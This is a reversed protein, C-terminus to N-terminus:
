GEDLIAQDPMIRRLFSDFLPVTFSLAGHAPSYIMGEKIMKARVPGLTSSEVGMGTAVDRFRYPGPGGAELSITHYGAARVKRGIENLLVTKGV